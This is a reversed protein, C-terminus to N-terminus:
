VFGLVPLRPEPTRLRLFFVIGRTEKFIRQAPPDKADFSARLVSKVLLGGLSHGVFLIPRAGINKTILLELVQDAQVILSTSSKWGSRHADYDLSWVNIEPWQDALWNPWSTDGQRPDSSWTDLWNGGLGHVFVLDGVASNQHVGIPHLDSM